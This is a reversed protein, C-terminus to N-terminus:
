DSKRPRGPGKKPATRTTKKKVVSKKPPAKKPKPEKVVTKVEHLPLSMYDHIAKGMKSLSRLLDIDQGKPHLLAEWRSLREDFQNDETIFGNLYTLVAYKFYQASLSQDEALQYGGFYHIALPRPLDKRLDEWANLIRSKFMDGVKLKSGPLQQLIEKTVKTDQPLQWIRSKARRQDAEGSTKPMPVSDEYGDIMLYVKGFNAVIENRIVTHPDKGAVDVPITQRNKTMVIAAGVISEAVTSDFVVIPRIDTNM